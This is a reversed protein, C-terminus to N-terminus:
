PAAPAGALFHAYREVWSGSVAAALIEQPTRRLTESLLRLNVLGVIEADTLAIEKWRGAPLSRFRQYAGELAGAPASEPLPVHLQAADLRYRGALDAWGRGADRLAVVAEPSVGARRALFLVVPIEEASLRWESLIAVESRPLVFYEAVAGFYAETAASGAGQGALAAASAALLVGVTGGVRAIVSVVDERQLGTVAWDEVPHMSRALTARHSM